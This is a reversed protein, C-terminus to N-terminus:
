MTEEFSKVLKYFTTKKINLLQMARVATIEESKWRNYVDVFEEPTEVKRCGFRVSNKQVTGISERHSKRITNRNEEAM